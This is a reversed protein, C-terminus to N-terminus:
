DTGLASLNSDIAFDGAQLEFANVTDIQTTTVWKGVQEDRNPVNAAGAANSQVGFSISLLEEGSIACVYSILFTVANTAGADPSFLRAITIQTGDAGGNGSRRLAYNTGSDVSGDGVRLELNASGTSITHVLFQNFQLKTLDSITMTDGASGLTDPTGNKQWVM